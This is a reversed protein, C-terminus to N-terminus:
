RQPKLRGRGISSDFPKCIKKSGVCLKLWVPNNVVSTYERSFSVYRVLYNYVIHSKRYRTLIHYSFNSFNKAAPATQLIAQKEHDYRAKDAARARKSAKANRDLAKTQKDTQKTAKELKPTGDVGLKVNIDANKAM